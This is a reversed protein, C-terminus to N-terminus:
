ANPQLASSRACCILLDADPTKEVLSRLIMIEDTMPPEETANAHRPNIRWGAQISGKNARRYSISTAQGDLSKQPKAAKVGMFPPEARSNRRSVKIVM